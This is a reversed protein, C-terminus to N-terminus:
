AYKKREKDYYIHCRKCLEMYDDIDRKYRGSINAFEYKISVKTGCKECINNRKKRYSVWLHLAKYGANEGKWAPNNENFRKIRPVDIKGKAFLEKMLFSHEPRKKGSWCGKKGLNGFTPKIKGSKYHELLTNSRKKIIEKTHLWYPNKHGKHVM